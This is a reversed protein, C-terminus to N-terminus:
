VATTVEAAERGALGHRRLLQTAPDADLRTRVRSWTGQRGLQWVLLPLGLLILLALLSTV